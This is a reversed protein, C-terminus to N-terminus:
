GPYSRVATVDARVCTAGPTLRHLHIKKFLRTQNNTADLESVADFPNVLGHLYFVGARLTAGQTLPSAPLNASEAERTTEIM